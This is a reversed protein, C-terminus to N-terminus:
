DDVNGTGLKAMQVLAATRQIEFARARMSRVFNEIEEKTEALWYGRQCDSVIPCGSRREREIELRISRSDGNLIRRLERMTQAHERGKCLVDSVRLAQREADDTIFHNCSIAAEGFAATEETEARTAERTSVKEKTNM